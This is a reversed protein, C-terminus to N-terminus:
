KPVRVEASPPVRPAAVRRAMDSGGPTPAAAFRPSSFGTTLHSRCPPFMSARASSPNPISCAATVPPSCTAFSSSCRPALTSRRAVPPMVARMTAALSPWCARTRRSSSCLALMSRCFASPPVAKITAVALPWFSHTFSSSCAPALVSSRSSSPLDASICASAWPRVAVASSSRCCAAVGSTLTAMTGGSSTPRAAFRPLSCGTTSHSSFPPCTSASSSFPSPNSCPATAPTRRRTAFSSSCRPALTSRRAVPPMVARMDPAATPWCAM